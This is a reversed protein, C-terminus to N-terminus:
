FKNSTTYTGLAAINGGGIGDTSQFKICANGSRDFSPFSLEFTTRLVKQTFDNKYAVIYGDAFIFRKAQFAGFMLQTANTVVDSTGTTFLISLRLKRASGWSTNTTSMTGSGVSLSGYLFNMMGDAAQDGSGELTGVQLPYGDFVVTTQTEPMKKVIRRVDMTPAYDVRREGNRIDISSVM